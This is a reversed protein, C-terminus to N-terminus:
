HVDRVEYRLLSFHSLWVWHYRVKKRERLVDSTWSIFEVMDKVAVSTRTIGSLAWPIHTLVSVPAMSGHLMAIMKDEKGKELMGFSRNFGIDGMIDFSWFNLWNSIRLAPEHGHEKLKDILARTHRNIRPEYDRLSKAGLARDWAKRREKHDNKSPTTHLSYGEMHKTSEYWPGKRCKTMPGHILPIADASAISLERPGTRIIDCKYKQHMKEIENYYQSKPIAL